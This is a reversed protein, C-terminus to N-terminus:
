PQQAKFDHHAFIQRVTASDDAILVRLPHHARFPDNRPEPEREDRGGKQRPMPLRSWSLFTKHIEPNAQNLHALLTRARRIAENARNLTAQREALDPLNPFDMGEEPLPEEDMLRFDDNDVTGIM